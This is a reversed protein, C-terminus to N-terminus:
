VCSNMEESGYGNWTRLAKQNVPEWFGKGKWNSNLDNAEEQNPVKTQVCM